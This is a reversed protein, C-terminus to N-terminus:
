LESLSISIDYFKTQSAMDIRVLSESYDNMMCTYDRWESNRDRQISLIINTNDICANYIFDRSAQGDVSMSAKDPCFRWSLNFILRPTKYYRKLNGNALEIDINQFSSGDSFSRNHETILTGNIKILQNLSLSPM